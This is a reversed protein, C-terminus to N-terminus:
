QEGTGVIGINRAGLRQADAMVKAVTDYRALRDSSVRIEPQPMAHAAQALRADLGARDVAQGNWTTTGDFQVDVQVSPPPAATRPGTGLNLNVAHMQMPLTVILMTLLVLMVDILPTINIEASPEATATNANM